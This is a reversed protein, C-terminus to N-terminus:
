GKGVEFQSKVMVFFDAGPVVLDCFVFFILIVSIFSVDMVVLSVSESVQVRSLVCVNTRELVVVREDSRIKWVLQGYGVDVVYVRAVGWRFLVYIFGGISAGVDLCIRVDVLINWQELVSLFKLVGRSM